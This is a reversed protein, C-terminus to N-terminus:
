QGMSVGLAIFGLRGLDDFAAFVAAFRGLDYFDAPRPRVCEVVLPAFGLPVRLRLLARPGVRALDDAHACERVLGADLDSREDLVKATARADADGVLQGQRLRARGREDHM